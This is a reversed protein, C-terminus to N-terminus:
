LRITCIYAIFNLRYCLIVFFLPFHNLFLSFGTKVLLKSKYVFFM